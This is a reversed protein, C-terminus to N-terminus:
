EKLQSLNAESGAETIANQVKFQNQFLGSVNALLETYDWHECQVTSDNGEDEKIAQSEHM